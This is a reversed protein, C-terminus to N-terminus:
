TSWRRRSMSLRSGSVRLSALPALPTAPRQHGFCLRVGVRSGVLSAHGPEGIAGCAEARRGGRLGFGVRPVACVTPALLTVFFTGSRSPEVQFPEWRSASAPGHAARKRLVLLRVEDAMLVPDLMWSEAAAPLRVSSCLLPRPLRSLLAQCIPDLPLRVGVSKRWRAVRSNFNICQKPLKKSAPLIFTYPGVGLGFSSDRHALYPSLSLLLVPHPSFIFRSPCRGAPM